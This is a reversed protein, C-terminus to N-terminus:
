NEDDDEVPPEAPMDADAEEVEPADPIRVDIIKAGPFKALIAAVTPDARADLFANERRENEKEAITQGGEERSLAVMWHRGTWAKLKVTLDNLLTKPAEDTLNVDLRGPEVRVLRVCRKVLVKLAMDRHADALNVIDALSKIPVAPPEEVAPPAYAIPAPENAVLRMTQGGGNTTQM